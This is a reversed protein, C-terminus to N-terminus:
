QQTLKDIIKLLIQYGKRMDSVTCYEDNAHYVAGVGFGMMQVDFGREQLDAVLPLAGTEAYPKCEGIVERTAESLAKFGVSTMDCAIGRYATGEWQLVVRGRSGDPLSNRFSASAAPLGDIHENVWAVHEQMRKQVDEVKYFPTLRIDGSIDCESPIQNVSGPPHAWMTPKMTSPCEYGYLQEQAHKPFDHHFQKLLYDLAHTAILLPNIANQPLGSHGRKGHATLKWAVMSGCGVTPHIDASDLWYLPGHKIFELEGERCLHDVGIDPDDGVEEDAIFVCVVSVSLVPKHIALHRLLETLLAVHGLCDTTGRGFLKDGERTLTFPDRTWEKPNAPVVDMHSGVFSVTRQTTGPYTIIVNSRNPVYAKRKYQLPGHPALYPGLVKEVHAVVRDEEPVLEPPSNQVYKSEGILKTLLEVFANEDFEYHQISTSM